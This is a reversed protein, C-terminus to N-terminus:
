ENLKKFRGEWSTGKVTSTYYIIDGEIKNIVVNMVDGPKFPFNPITIKTMEMDYSCDNVWKIKSEITYNNLNSYEIQKEGSMVIYATTDAADLYKFKGTKFLNCNPKTNKQAFCPIIFLLLVSTLVAKLLNM